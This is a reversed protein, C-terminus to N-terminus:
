AAVARMAESISTGNQIIVGNKLGLAVAVKHADGRTGKLRGSLVASVIERSVGLERALDTASKGILSLRTRAEELKIPKSM